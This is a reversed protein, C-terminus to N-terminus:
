GVFVPPRTVQNPVVFLVYIARELSPQEFSIKVESLKAKGGFAKDDSFLVRYTPKQPTPPLRGYMYHQFLAKLEPKRNAEWQEKTTIKTGDLMTLPDPLNPNVPLRDPAPFEAATTASFLIMAPLVLLFRAPSFRLM